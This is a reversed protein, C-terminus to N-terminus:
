EMYRFEPHSYGLERAEAETKGQLRHDRRGRERQRNEWRVYLIGAIGLLCVLAEASMNIYHGKRYRPGDEALYSWTAAVSGFNGM